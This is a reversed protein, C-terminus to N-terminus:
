EAKPAAVKGVVKDYGWSVYPAAFNYVSTVSKRVVPPVPVKVKKDLSKGAGVDLVISETTTTLIVHFLSPASIEFKFNADDKISAATSTSATATTKAPM